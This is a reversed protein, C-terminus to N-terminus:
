RPDIPHYALSAAAIEVNGPLDIQRAVGPFNMSQKIIQYTGHERAVEIYVTYTGAKM